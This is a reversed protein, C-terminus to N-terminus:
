KKTRAKKMLVFIRGLTFAAAFFIMAIVTIIFLKSKMISKINQRLALSASKEADLKTILPSSGLIKGDLSLTIEGVETGRRVPATLSEGYYTVTRTVRSVDTDKPLFAFVDNKAAVTVYNRQKSLTVPLEGVIDTTGSIKVLAFNGLAWELLNKADTYVPMRGDDTDAGGMLVCVFSFAKETASTIVCRGADDTFGVAM